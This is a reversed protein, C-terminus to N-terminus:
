FFLNDNISPSYWATPVINISNKKWTTRLSHFSIETRRLPTQLQAADNPSPPPPFPFAFVRLSIDCAIRLYSIALEVSVEQVRRPINRSDQKGLSNELPWREQGLEKIWSLNFWPRPLTNSKMSKWKDLSSTRRWPQATAGAIHKAKQKKKMIWFLSSFFTGFNWSKGATEKNYPM